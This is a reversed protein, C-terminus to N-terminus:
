DIIIVALIIKEQLFKITRKMSQLISFIKNEISFLFSM